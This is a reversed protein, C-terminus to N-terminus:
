YYYYYYHSRCATLITTLNFLAFKCDKLKGQISLYLLQTENRNLDVAHCFYIGADTYNFHEISLKSIWTNSSSTNVPDSGKLLLIGKITSIGWTVSPKSLADVTCSLEVHEGIKILYGVQALTTDNSTTQFTLSVFSTAVYFSFLIFTMFSKEICHKNYINYINYIDYIIYIYNANCTCIIDTMYM